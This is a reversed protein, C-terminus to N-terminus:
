HYDYFSNSYIMSFKYETNTRLKVIRVPMFREPGYFPYMGCGSVFSGGHIWVVVPLKEETSPKTIPSYVSLLLCDEGMNDENM